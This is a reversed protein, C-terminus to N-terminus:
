PRPPAGTAPVAGLLGGPLTPSESLQREDARIPIGNVLVHVVGAPQDTVLRDGGGPLDAVRRTPGPALREWDLVVLDAWYGPAVYGRAPLELLDALEGTLRHIGAEPAMLERDRVWNALFDTPMAADCIQGAHAGADSLGLVCGDAGLLASVAAVDDNAFTVAFRTALDDALAIDCVVDFPDCGRERALDVISRGELERRPSEGITFTDFRADVHRDHNIEHRARDRWAPDRYLAARGARDAALVAGFAPVMAFVTPEGMTFLFAVPRCTVQPHVDAGRAVGARHADIKDAWHAKSQAGRPYALIASWTVPRGLRLQFDYLWRFNEGPACHVIGRREEACVTMLAEVEVQTAVASPVVRGGDGRHFPGRDTSFGVAGAALADRIQDRMVDLEATTAEREWAAEGMAWMRLATHGIYGSFNIATGARAVRALYDAYTEFSWDVGVELTAVRMDEVKDLTRLLSGRSAPRCPAISFGCNGAVVGTVGQHSSPTLWPDWLVQPDYHTHLDLFGPAVVCGSADLETDGRLGEAVEVVLGDHVRVDARRAPRGTGDVVTGGRIVLEAVAGGQGHTRRDFCLGAPGGVSPAGRATRLAPDM